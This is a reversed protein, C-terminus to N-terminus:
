RRWVRVKETGGNIVIQGFHVFRVGADIKTGLSIQIGTKYQLHRYFM